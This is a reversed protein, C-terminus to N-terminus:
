QAISTWAGSLMAENHISAPIYPPIFQHRPAFFIFFSGQGGYNSFNENLNMSIYGGQIRAEGLWTGIQGKTFTGSQLSVPVIADVDEPMENIKISFPGYGNNTSPFSSFSISAYVFDDKVVLRNSDPKIGIGFTARKYDTETFQGHWGLVTFGAAVIITLPGEEDWYTLKEICLFGKDIRCRLVTGRTKESSSILIATSVASRKMRFADPLKIELREAAKYEESATDIVFKGNLVCLRDSQYDRFEIPGCGFNNKTCTIM